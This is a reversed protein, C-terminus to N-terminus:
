SPSKVGLVHKQAAAYERKVDALETSKQDDMAKIASEYLPLSEAWKNQKTLVRAENRETVPIFANHEGYNKKFLERSQQLYRACQTYMKKNEYLSALNNLSVAVRENEPGCAEAEKLGELLDKEAVDLDNRGLAALGSKNKDEWVHAHEAAVEKPDLQLRETKPACSALATITMASILLATPLQLLKMSIVLCTHFEIKGPRNM